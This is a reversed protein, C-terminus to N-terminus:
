APSAGPGRRWRALSTRGDLLRQLILLTLLGYVLGGATGSIPNVSRGGTTLVLGAVILAGVHAPLWWSPIPVYMMLVRWQAIAAGVGVCLFIFLLPLLDALPNNRVVAWIVIASYSGIAGGGFWGVATLLPWRGVNERFTRLAVVQPIAFALGIAALLVPSWIGIIYEVFGGIILAAAVGGVVNAALWPVVAVDGRRWYSIVMAATDQDQLSRETM